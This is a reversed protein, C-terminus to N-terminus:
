SPPIRGMKGAQYDRVAQRLEAETNMVFPGYRAVPERLPAAAMLLLEAGGAYRARSLREERAHDLGGAGLRVVEGAGFIALSGAPIAKAEKGVRAEGRFVYASVQQEPPFPLDVVAGPQLRWHQYNTPLTTKIAGKVGLAQGAIIRGTARKDSTQVEPVNVAHLEQYYPQKMKLDRPLNVWLQFAHAHGGKRLMQDSPMESHVIGSGATMWQVGGPGISSDHGLSDRHHLDGALVYSVTEFGRHPHDPAGVANYPAYDVPGLEDLLLFPDVLSLEHNPFPRRVVFGAGERQRVGKVVRQVARSMEPTSVNRSRGPQGPNVLGTKVTSECAGVGMAALGGVLKLSNGIVERRTIARWTDADTAQRKTAM